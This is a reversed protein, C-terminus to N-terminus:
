QKGQIENEIQDVRASILAHLEKKQSESFNKSEKLRDDYEILGGSDKTARIMMKAREFMEGSTLKKPVQAEPADLTGWYVDLAIGLMSACKKLADTGAAKLADGMPVNKHIPHQGFQTKSVRWNNKHDIITIKGRVWVEGESSNENKRETTGHEVIEFEWGLPSFAENLKSIVYGGEVYSVRKGGRGPKSKILAAPTEANIIGTQRPSLSIERVILAKVQKPEKNPVEKVEKKAM